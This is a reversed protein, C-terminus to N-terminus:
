VNTAQIEDTCSSILEKTAFHRRPTLNSNIAICLFIKFLLVKQMKWILISLQLISLAPHKGLPFVHGFKDEFDLLHRKLWAYRKDIKDLWAIDQNEHFLHTYEEM